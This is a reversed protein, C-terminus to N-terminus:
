RPRWPRVPPAPRHSPTADAPPVGMESRGAWAVPPMAHEPKPEDEDQQAQQRQGRLRLGGFLDAGEDIAVAQDMVQGLRIFRCHRMPQVQQRLGTPVAKGCIAAPPKQTIKGGIQRWLRVPGKIQHRADPIGICMRKATGPKVRDDDIRRIEDLILARIRGIVAIVRLLRRRQGIRQPYEVIGCALQGARPEIDVFAPRFQTIERRRPPLHGAIM